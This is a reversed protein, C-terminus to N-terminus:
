DSSLDIHHHGPIDDHTPIPCPRPSACQGKGSGLPHWAGKRHVLAPGSKLAEYRTTPPAYYCGKPALIWEGKEWEWGGGSPKWTGDRFDCNKNRRLPVAEIKTPPPPEGVEIPPPEGDPLHPGTKIVGTNASCAIGLGLAFAVSSRGLRSWRVSGVIM